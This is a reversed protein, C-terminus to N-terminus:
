LNKQCIRPAYSGMQLYLLFVNLFVIFFTIFITYTYRNADMVDLNGFMRIQDPCHLIMHFKYFKFGKSETLFAVKCTQLLDDILREM